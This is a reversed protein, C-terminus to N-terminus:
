DSTTRHRRFYFFAVVFSLSILGISILIGYEYHHSSADFVPGSYEVSNINYMRVMWEWKDLVGVQITTGENEDYGPESITVTNNITAHSAYYYDLYPVANYGSNADSDCTVISDIIRGFESVTFNLTQWFGFQKGADAGGYVLGLLAYVNVDVNGSLSLVATEKAAGYGPMNNTFVVSTTDSPLDVYYLDNGFNTTADHTYETLLRTMANGPYAATTENGEGDKGYAYITFAGYQTFSDQSDDPTMYARITDDSYSGASVPSLVGGAFLLQCSIITMTAIGVFTIVRTRQKM